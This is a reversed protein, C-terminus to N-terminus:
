PMLGTRACLWLCGWVVFFTLLANVWEPRGEPEWYSM